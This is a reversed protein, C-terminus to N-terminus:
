QKRSVKNIYPMKKTARKHFHNMNEINTFEGDTGTCDAQNELPSIDVNKQDRILRM